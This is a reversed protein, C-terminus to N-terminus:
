GKAARKWRATRNQAETREVPWGDAGTEVKPQYGLDANTKIEHCPHCLVQLNDDENTGEHTVAIIHDLEFGAPGANPATIRQCMACKGQAELWLRKRTEQLKRGALRKITM